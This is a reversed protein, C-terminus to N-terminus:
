YNIYICYWQVNAIIAFLGYVMMLIRSSVLNNLLM